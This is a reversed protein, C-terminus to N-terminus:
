FGLWKLIKQFDSLEKSSTIKDNDFEIIFVGFNSLTKKTINNHLPAEFKISRM